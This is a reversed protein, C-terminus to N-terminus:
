HRCSIEYAQLAVPLTRFCTQRDAGCVKMGADRALRAWGQPDYHRPNFSAALKEYEAVPINERNMVWEGCGLISYLGWPIFMGFTADRWWKM